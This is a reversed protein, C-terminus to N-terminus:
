EGQQRELEIRRWAAVNTQHDRLNSAFLHGGAGDAVFYLDDTESPNLVAEISARGPNAIPTPPLGFIMYTNYPTAGRLESQRLGRALPEGGTLGYIVTPDSELRMGRKLRNIFVAAILSREESLGTEKEVISALVIAEEPTAFPLELARAPWLEEILADQDKMMRRIVADRTDGRTFGYTEPLLEGEGPALTIEGALVDNQAILALIQATTRGEPATFYHLVSKGAVLIDIIEMVSSRAPIEYEGAKLQSQQRRLRAVASFLEAYRIVGAHRLEDAIASVSAGPKLMVITPEEGPGPRTAERYALYGGGALVAAVLGALGVAFVLFSRVAGGPQRTRAQATKRTPM